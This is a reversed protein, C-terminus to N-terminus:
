GSPAGHEEPAFSDLGERLLAPRERM